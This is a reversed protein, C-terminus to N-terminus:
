VSVRFVMFIYYYYLLICLLIICYFNFCKFLFLDESQKFPTQSGLIQFFYQDSVVGLLHLSARHENGCWQQLPPLCSYWNNPIQSFVCTLLWADYNSSTAVTPYDSLNYINGEWCKNRIEENLQLLQNAKFTM